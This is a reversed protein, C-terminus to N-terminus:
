NFSVNSCVKPLHMFWQDLHILIAPSNKVGLSNILAGDEGARQPQCLPVIWICYLALPLIYIWSLNLYVESILTRTRRIHCDRERTPLVAWVKSFDLKNQYFTESHCMALLIMISSHSFQKVEIYLRPSETFTSSKPLLLVPARERSSTMIRSSGGLREMWETM